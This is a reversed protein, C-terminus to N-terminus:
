ARPKAAVRERADDREIQALAPSRRAIVEVAPLRVVTAAAVTPASRAQAAVTVPPQLAIAAFLGAAAFTAPGLLEDVHPM